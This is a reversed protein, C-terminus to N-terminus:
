FSSSWRHGKGDRKSGSPGGKGRSLNRFSQFTYTAGENWYKGLSSRGSSSRGEAATNQQQPVPSASSISSSSQPSQLIRREKSEKRSEVLYRTGENWYRRLTGATKGRGRPSLTNEPESAENVPPLLPPEELPNTPTMYGFVQRADLRGDISNRHCPAMLM